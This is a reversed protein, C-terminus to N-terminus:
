VISIYDEKNPDRRAIQWYYPKLTSVWLREGCANELLLKKNIYEGKIDIILCKVEVSDNHFNTTVYSGIKYEPEMGVMKREHEKMCASAEHDNLYKNFCYPCEWNENHQVEM